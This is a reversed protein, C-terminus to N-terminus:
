PASPSPQTRSAANRATATQASQTKVQFAQNFGERLEATHRRSNIADRGKDARKEMKRELRYMSRANRLSGYKQRLAKRRYRAEANSFLKGLGTGGTAASGVVIAAGVPLGIHPAAFLLAMFSAYGGVVGGVVGGYFKGDPDGTVPKGDNYVKRLKQNAANYREVRAAPDDIKKIEKMERRMEKKAKRLLRTKERKEPNRRFLM